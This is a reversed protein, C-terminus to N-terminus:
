MFHIHCFNTPLLLLLKIIIFIYLHFIIWLVTRFNKTSRFPSNKIKINLLPEVNLTLM